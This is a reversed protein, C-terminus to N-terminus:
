SSTHAGADVNDVFKFGLRGTNDFLYAFQSLACRSVNIFPTSNHLWEVSQPAGPEGTAFTYLPRQISSTSIVFSQGSAVLVNSGQEFPPNVGKPAQVIATSLGTDVLLKADLTIGASPSQVQVSPALWTATVSTTKTTNPSLETFYFGEVDDATLGLTIFRNVTDIVFGRSMFKPNYMDNMLLFPNLEDDPPIRYGGIDLGTPLGRDFGVGLMRVGDNPGLDAESIWKSTPSTRYYDVIRVLMSTTSATTVGTLTFDPYNSFDVVAEAYVGKYGTGNTSYEFLFPKSVNRQIHPGVLNSSILIGTSGTDVVFLQSPGGGVRAWLCPSSTASPTMFKDLKFTVSKASHSIDAISAVLRALNPVCGVASQNDNPAAMAPDLILAYDPISVVTPRLQELM